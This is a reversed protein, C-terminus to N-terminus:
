RTLNQAWTYKRYYWLVVPVKICEDLNLVVYVVLVPLQWYFAALLALPTIIGWLVVGDCICGFRSKGGACFIGGIVTSNIQSAIVYYSCVLLMGSLYGNAAPSLAVLNLLVPRLSLLLAGSCVGFGASLWTM